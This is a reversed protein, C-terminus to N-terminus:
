RQTKNIGRKRIGKPTQNPQKVSIKKNTEQYLGTYSYIETLVAKSCGKLKSNDHKWKWKDEPSKINGWLDM